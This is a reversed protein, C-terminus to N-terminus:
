KYLQKSYTFRQFVKNRFIEGSGSSLKFTFQVHGPKASPPSICYAEKDSIYEGPVEQQDFVCSIDYDERIRSSKLTVM